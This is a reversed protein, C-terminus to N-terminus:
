SVTIDWLKAHKAIKLLFKEIGINEGFFALIYDAIKLNGTFGSISSFGFLSIYMLKMNHTCVIRSIIRKFLIIPLSVNKSKLFPWFVM